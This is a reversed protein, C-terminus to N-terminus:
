LVGERFIYRTFYIDTYVEPKQPCNGLHTVISEFLDGDPFREQLADYHNTDALLLHAIQKESVDLALRETNGIEVIYEEWDSLNVTYDYDITHTLCDVGLTTLVDDLLVEFDYVVVTGGPSCFRTLAKRLSDSKTYFLSGAFSVIDLKRAPLHIHSDLEGHIYTVKAHTLASDLMARSSDVGFVHDCYRSLAIASYGTGCGVDLGAQFTEDPQLIRELILSHLPPRYAAYHWAASDDYRETM